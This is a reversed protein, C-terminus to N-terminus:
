AVSLCSWRGELGECLIARDSPNKGIIAREVIRATRRRLGRSSAYMIQLLWYMHVTLLM